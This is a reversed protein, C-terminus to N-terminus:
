TELTFGLSYNDDKDLLCTNVRVLMGPWERMMITKLYEFVTECMEYCELINTIKYQQIANAIIIEINNKIEMIDPANRLYEITINFALSLEKYRSCIASLHKDEIYIDKTIKINIYNKM